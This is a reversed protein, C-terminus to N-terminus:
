HANMVRFKRCARSFKTLWSFSCVARLKCSIESRRRSFIVSGRSFDGLGELIKSAYLTCTLIQFCERISIGSEGLTFQCGGDGAALAALLKASAADQLSASRSMSCASRRMSAVSAARSRSAMTAALADARVSPAGM